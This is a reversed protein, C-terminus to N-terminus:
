LGRIKDIPSFMSERSNTLVLYYKGTLSSVIAYDISKDPLPFNKYRIKIGQRENDLFNVTTQKLADLEFISKLDNAITPEWNKMIEAVKNTDKIEVILVLRKGPENQNDFSEEQGYVLITGSEKIWNKLDSPYNVSLRTILDSFIPKTKDPLIQFNIRRFEKKALSAKTIFSRLDSLTQEPAKSIQFVSVSVDQFITELENIQIVPPTPSLVPTPTAVITGDERIFFYYILAYSIIAVVVTTAIGTTMGSSVVRAIVGYEVKEEEPKSVKKKPIPLGLDAIQTEEHIHAPRGSPVPIPPLNNKDIFFPKIEPLTASVKPLAVSIEPLGSQRPLLKDKAASIIEKQTQFSLPTLGQKIRVLDDKMTRISLGPKAATIKQDESRISPIGLGSKQEPAKIGLQPLKVASSRTADLPSSPMSVTPVQRSQSVKVEPSQIVSSKTLQDLIDGITLSKEDM